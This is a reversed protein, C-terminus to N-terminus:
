IVVGIKRRKNKYNSKIKVILNNFQKRLKSPSLINKSWFDDDQTWKILFEIQEETRNDIERLKRIDESWIDWNPKFNWEPNKEKILNYLLTALEKDKNSYKYIYKNHTIAGENQTHHVVRKHTIKKSEKPKQTIKVSDPQNKRIKLKLLIVNEYWRNTTKLYSTQPDKEVLKKDILVNILNNVQWRKIGAYFGLTEKSATCWGQIRSRPNNSLHYISDAICYETFTLGLSMRAKHIILTYTLLEKKEDKYEEAM